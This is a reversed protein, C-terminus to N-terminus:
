ISVLKGKSNVKMAGNEELVGVLSEDTAAQLLEVGFVTPVTSLRVDDIIAQMMEGPTKGELAEVLMAIVESEAPQNSAGGDVPAGEGEGSSAKTKIVRPEGDFVYDADMLAKPWLNVNKNFQKGPDTAHVGFEFTRGFASDPTGIKAYSATVGLATFAAAHKAHAQNSGLTSGEKSKLKHVVSQRFPTGDERVLSIGEAELFWVEYKYDGAKEAYKRVQALIRADTEAGYSPIVKGSEININASITLQGIFGRDDVPNDPDGQASLLEEDETTYTPTILAL